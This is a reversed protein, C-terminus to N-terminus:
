RDGQMYRRQPTRNGLIKRLRRNARTLQTSVTSRSIGLIDAIEDNKYEYIKLLVIDRMREPLQRVATLTETFESDSQVLDAPDPHPLPPQSAVYLRSYHFDRALKKRRNSTENKLAAYLYARPNQITHWKRLMEAFVQQVIDAVDLDSAVSTVFGVAEDHFENFFQDFLHKSGTSDM